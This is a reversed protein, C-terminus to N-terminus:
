PAISRCRTITFGGSGLQGLVSSRATLDNFHWWESALPSLEADTCYGQLGKAPDNMSPALQASKWATPSHSAVPTTFTAAARSLEHIATPMEYLRYERMRVFRYDGCACEEVGDVRALSVDVAYGQQHNSASTAIFWSISWPASTVGARVESDDRIMNRLVGSVKLQVDLPRYGEYLVLCNGEALAARQAACLRYAMQYLVPMMFEPEGLRPNQEKGPYLQQGTIGALPKGCSVFKSSYGNTADYIISPIVDPLNIMCTRHEVWGIVEGHQAAGDETYDAECRVKWWGGSEQLVTFPTGAPLMSLAGDHLNPGDEEEPAPEPEPEPAPELEPLAEPADPEAGGNPGAAAGAEPEPPEQLPALPDGGLVPAQGATTVDVAADAQRRAAEERLRAEEAERARQAEAEEQKRKEEEARRKAEEEKKRMWEDYRAKAEASDEVTKWLPISVSTYGTAGQVPLELGNHYDPLEKRSLIPETTWVLEGPLDPEEPAEPEETTQVPEEHTGLVPPSPWDARRGVPQGESSLSPLLTALPACSTCLLLLAASGAAIWSKKM